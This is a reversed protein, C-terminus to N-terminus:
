GAASDYESLFRQCYCGPVRCFEYRYIRPASPTADRALAHEAYSHGCRCVWTRPGGAENAARRRLMEEDTAM